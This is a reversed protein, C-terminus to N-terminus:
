LSNFNSSVLLFNTLHICLYLGSFGFLILCIFLSFNLLLTLHYSLSIVEQSQFIKKRLFLPLCLHLYISNFHKPHPTSLHYARRGRLLTPLGNSEKCPVKPIPSFGRMISYHMEVLSLVHCYVFTYSVNNVM